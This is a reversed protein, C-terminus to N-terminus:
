RRFCEEKWCEEKLQLISRKWEWSAYIQVAYNKPLFIQLNVKHFYVHLVFWAATSIKRSLIGVVEVHKKWDHQVPNYAITIASKNDCNLEM